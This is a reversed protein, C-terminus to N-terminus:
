LAERYFVAVKPYATCIVAVIGNNVWRGSKLLRFGHAELDAVAEAYSHFHVTM